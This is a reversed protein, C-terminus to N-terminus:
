ASDALTTFFVFHQEDAVSLDAVWRHPKSRFKTKWNETTNLLPTNVFVRKTRLNAWDGQAELGFM